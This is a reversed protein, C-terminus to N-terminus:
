FKWMNVDLGFRYQNGPFGTWQEIDGILRVHRPVYWASNTSNDRWLDIAVGTGLIATPQGNNDVPASGLKVGSISAGSIPIGVGVYALPTLTLVNSVLNLPLQLTANGSPMWFKGNIYDLRVGTDVYQSIPYFAGVGGGAHKTLSPAYLGYLVVDWNTVGSKVADLIMQAGSQVTPPNTVSQARASACALCVLGVAAVRQLVGAYRVPYRPGFVRLVLRRGFDFIVALVAVMTICSMALLMFLFAFTIMIFDPNSNEGNWFPWSVCGGM